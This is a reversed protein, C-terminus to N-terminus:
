LPFGTHMYGRPLNSNEPFEVQYPWPVLNLATCCWAIGTEYVDRHETVRATIKLTLLNWTRRQAGLLSVPSHFFQSSFSSHTSVSHSKLPLIHQQPQMPLIINHCSQTHPQSSLLRCISSTKISPYKHFHSFEERGFVQSELINLRM